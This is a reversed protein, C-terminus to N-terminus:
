FFKSIIGPCTGRRLLKWKEWKGSKEPNLKRNETRQHFKGRVLVETILFSAMM